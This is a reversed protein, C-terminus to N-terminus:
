EESGSPGNAGLRRPILLLQDVDLLANETEILAGPSTIESPLVGFRIALTRLTEGPQAQYLITESPGAESTPTSPFTPPVVPDPAAPSAPPPPATPPDTPVAPAPGTAGPLPAPGDARACALGAALLVLAALGTRLGASDVRARTRTM